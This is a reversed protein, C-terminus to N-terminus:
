ESPKTLELNLLSQHTDDMWALVFGLGSVPPIM